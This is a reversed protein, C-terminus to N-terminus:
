RNQILSPLKYIPTIISIAVAGVFLGMLILLVPGLLNSVLKIKDNVEEEFLESITNLVDEVSGTTEGLKIMQTFMPEFLFIHLNFFESLIGGTEVYKAGEKFIDKYVLNDLTDATINLAEVVGIGSSLLTAVTHAFRTLQIQKNLPGIFPIRLILSDKLKRLHRVRM